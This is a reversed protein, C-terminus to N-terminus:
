VTKTWNDLGSRKIEEIGDNLWLKLTKLELANAQCPSMLPNESYAHEVTRLARKLYARLKKVALKSQLDQQM